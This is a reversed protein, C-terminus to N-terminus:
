LGKERVAAAIRKLAASYSKVKDGEWRVQFDVVNTAPVFCRWAQKAESRQIKCGQYYVNAGAPPPPPKRNRHANSEAIAEAVSPGKTKTKPETKVKKLSAKTPAAKAAAAAPKKKTGGSRDALASGVAAAYLAASNGGVLPPVCGDVVGAGADAAAAPPATPAGVNMPDDGLPAIVSATGLTGGGAATTPAHSGVTGIVNFPSPRAASPPPVGHMPKAPPTNPPLDDGFGLTLAPQQQYVLPGGFSGDSSQSELRAPAADPRSTRGSRRANDFIRLGDVDGDHRSQPPARIVGAQQLAAVVGVVIQQQMGGGHPVIADGQQPLLQKNNKRMPATQAEYAMRPPIHVIAPDEATYIQALEVPLGAATPPYERLHTVASSRPTSLQLQTFYSKVKDVVDRRVVASPQADPWHMSIILAIIMRQTLEKPNRLHLKHFFFNVVSQVKVELPSDSGLVDWLSQQPYQEPTTLLQTANDDPGDRAALTSIRESISAALLTKDAISFCSRGISTNLCHASVISIGATVHVKSILSRAMASKMDDINLGPLGMAEQGQIYGSAADIEAALQQVGFSM